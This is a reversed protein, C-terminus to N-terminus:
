CLFFPRLRASIRFESDHENGSHLSSHVIVKESINESEACFMCRRHPAYMKLGHSEESSVGELRGVLFPYGQRFHHLPDPALM